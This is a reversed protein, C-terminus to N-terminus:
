ILRISTASERIARELLYIPDNFLENGMGEDIETQYFELSLKYIEKYARLEIEFLEKAFKTTVRSRKKLADKINFGFTLIGGGIILLIILPFIIKKNM